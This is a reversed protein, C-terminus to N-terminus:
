SLGSLDVPCSPHRLKAIAKSQTKRVRERTLGLETSIDTLTQPPSGDLGFRRKIVEREIPELFSVASALEGDRLTESVVRYPDDQHQDDEIFDVLEAGSEDGVPQDLSITENPVALALRVRSPDVGSAASIEAVTPQRHNRELLAQQTEQVNRVVDIMHVPLRITRGHNGVGRSIAQRIWWTAYTSFKFGKRWDFKEVARILGLNGEQILDLIDLGRGSYRKAISIVLRLNARIFTMKAEEGSRVLRKLRAKEEANLDKELELRSLAHRGREMTQALSVEEDATLLLHSSIDDLYVGVTDGLARKGETKRM